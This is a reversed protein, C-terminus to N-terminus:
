ASRRSEGARGRTVESTTPSTSFGGRSSRRWPYHSSPVWGQEKRGRYRFMLSDLWCNRDSAPDGIRRERLRRRHSLRMRPDAFRRSNSNRAAGNNAGAIAANAILDTAARDVARQPLPRPGARPLVVAAGVYSITLEDRARSMAVYLMSGQLLMSDMDNRDGWPFKGDDLGPLFVKKFELGKSRAYTGVKVGPTPRGSYGCLRVHRHGGGPSSRGLRRRAHEDPRPDCRADIDDSDRLQEVIWAM